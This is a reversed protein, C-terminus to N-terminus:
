DLINRIAKQLEDVRYPKSYVLTDETKIDTLATNKDYGTVLIVKLEPKIRRMREVAQAGSLKPMVVDSIVVSIEHQHKQFIEVAEIGDRAELVRYGVQHLVEGSTQLIDEDDDVLLLTEGNGELSGQAKVEPQLPHFEFSEQVPLYIHFESGQGEESIVELVGQHSEVAGYVMALGLGTGSGVEKTTFFPEFIHEKDEQSMGSGNDKVMIHAFEGAKADPHAKVFKVDPTFLSLSVSVKPEVVAAVADCANNLLNILVQQLQNSDGKIILERDCYHEELAINEPITSKHLASISYMFSTLGFLNLETIGKRAFTLLQKITDSASFSLEEVRELITKVEPLHETEMKALYLNATMAALTNNFDHAIGGVLIGLAEMKQSQRFKEELMEHVSMDIQSGVFHTIDHNKDMIPSITMVAPYMTGDKRRDIISKQWVEGRTITQWMKKYYSDTQNGSKLVRPSKGLVEEAEYGTIRTFSPNVYEIIGDKDTIMVSEGAQETAQSIKRLNERSLKREIAIGALKAANIIDSIERKTPLRPHDYYMAFTGLVKGEGSIIPESWCAFLDFSRALDSYDKWRPDTAIDKVVVRKKLYAASGCSGVM